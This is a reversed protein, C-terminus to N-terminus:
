EIKSYDGDILNIDSCHTRLMTEMSPDTIINSLKAGGNEGLKADHFMEVKVSPCIDESLITFDASGVKQEINGLILTTVEKSKAEKHTIVARGDNRVILVVSQDDDKVYQTAASAYSSVGVAFLLVFVNLMTKSKM